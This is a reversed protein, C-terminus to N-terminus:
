KVKRYGPAKKIIFNSPLDNWKFVHFDSSGDKNSHKIGPFIEGGFRTITTNEEFWNRFTKLDGIGWWLLKEEDGFGYFFYDGWGERIKELETKSGSPRDTRITFDNRYYHKNYYFLRRIRCAVRKSNILLVIDTNHKMDEEDDAEVILDEDVNFTKGLIQKIEPIFIDSWKKDDKWFKSLKTGGLILDM